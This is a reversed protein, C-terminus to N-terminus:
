KGKNEHFLKALSVTLKAPPSNNRAQNRLSGNPFNTRPGQIMEYPHKPASITAATGKSLAFEEEELKIIGDALAQVEWMDLPPTKVLSKHM